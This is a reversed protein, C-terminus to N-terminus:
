LKTQVRTDNCNELMTGSKTIVPGSNWALPVPPYSHIPKQSLSQFSLGSDTDQPCQEYQITKKKSSHYQSHSAM